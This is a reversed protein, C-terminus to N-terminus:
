VRQLLIHQARREAELMEPTQIADGERLMAEFDRDSVGKNEGYYPTTDDFEELPKVAEPAPRQYEPLMGEAEMQSGVSQIAQPNNTSTALTLMRVLTNERREKERAARQEEYRRKEEERQTLADERQQAMLRQRVYNQVGVDAGRGLSKMFGM